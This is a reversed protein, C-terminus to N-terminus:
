LLNLFFIFRIHCKKRTRDNKFQATGQIDSYHIKHGLKFLIYVNASSNDRDFFVSPRVCMKHIRFWSVGKTRIQFGHQELMSMTFGDMRIGNSKKRKINNLAKVFKSNKKSNTSIISSIASCRLCLLNYKLPACDQNKVLLNLCLHHPILPNQLTQKASPM